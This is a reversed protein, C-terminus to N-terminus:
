LAKVGHYVGTGVGKRRLLAGFSILLVLLALVLMRRLTCILGRYKTRTADTFPLRKLLLWTFSNGSAFSTEVVTRAGTRVDEIHSEFFRFTKQEIHHDCEDESPTGSSEKRAHTTERCLTKQQFRATTRRELELGGGLVQSVALHEELQLQFM